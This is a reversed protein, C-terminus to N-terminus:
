RHVPDGGEVGINQLGVHEVVGVLHEGFLELVHGVTHVMAAPEALHIRLKVAKDPLAAAPVLIKELGGGEGPQLLIGAVGRHQGPQPGDLVFILQAKGGPGLPLAADGEVGVGHEVHLDLPEMLILPLQEIHQVDDVQPLPEMLVGVKVHGGPGVEEAGLGGGAIGHGLVDDM